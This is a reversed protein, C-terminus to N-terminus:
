PLEPRRDLCGKHFPPIAGQTPQDCGQPPARPTQRPATSAMPAPDPEEDAEVVKYHRVLAQSLPTHHAGRGHDDPQSVMNPAIPLIDPQRHMCVWAEGLLEVFPNCMQQGRSQRILRRAPRM